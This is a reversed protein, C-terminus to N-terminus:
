RVPAFTQYICQFLRPRSAICAHEKVKYSSPSPYAVLRGAAKGWPFLCYGFYLLIPPGWPRDLRTRFIEGGGSKLGWVTWGTAFQQVSWATRGGVDVVSVNGCIGNPFHQMNITLVYSVCIVSQLFNCLKKKNRSTM